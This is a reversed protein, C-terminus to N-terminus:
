LIDNMELDNESYGMLKYHDAIINKDYHVPLFYLEYKLNPFKKELVTKLLLIQSNSENYGHLIFIIENEPNNLYSYFNSIRKIYRNKFEKYNNDIYHNIGGKWNQSIYLNAHGPSEHNYIFNYYTNRILKDDKIHSFNPSDGKCQIISLFNEDYFNKFDEDICKIVGSLNSVLEDFPCTLYGEKKTKRIGTEVGHIAGNCNWGLSIAIKPM